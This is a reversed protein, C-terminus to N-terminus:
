STPCILWQDWGPLYTTSLVFSSTGDSSPNAEQFTVSAPNLCTEGPALVINDNGSTHSYIYYGSSLGGIWNLNPLGTLDLTFRWTTAGQTTYDYDAFETKVFVGIANIRGSSTGATGVSSNWTLACKNGTLLQGTSILVGDCNGVSPFPPTTSAEGWAAVFLWGNIKVIVTGVKQRQYTGVVPVKTSTGTVTGSGTTIPTGNAQYLNVTISLDQCAPDINGIEVAAYHNGTTQTATTATLTHTVCKEVTMVSVQDGTKVILQSASATSSGYITLLGLLAVIASGRLLAPARHRPATAAHRPAPSPRTLVSLAAAGAEVGSAVMRAVAAETGEVVRDILDLEEEAEREPDGEGEGKGNGKNEDDDHREECDDGTFWLLLVMAALLVFAWVMPNLLLITVRGFKAYHVLVVGKVESGKPTFPDVFNNNDGQMKWGDTANGGIIRHVIQSGGLSAPAYVIVDGVSPTMKRAIVLDGTFYTPEMSHGSVVVFSTDGGLQTPWMYWGDIAVIAWILVSGLLSLYRRTTWEGTDIFRRIEM